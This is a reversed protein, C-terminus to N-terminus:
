YLHESFLRGEDDTFKRIIQKASVAVVWAQERTLFEGDQNLFGCICEHENFAVRNTMAQRQMIHDYHRPGVLMSGSPHKVAACVIRKQMFM